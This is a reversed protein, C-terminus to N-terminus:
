AEIEWVPVGAARAKAIMDATGRGGPFAIVLDPGHTLMQANRIPGAADGHRAWDARVGITFKESNGPRRQARRAEQERRTIARWEEAALSDAGPACGHILGLMGYDSMLDLVARVKARDAYARGGCVLVRRVLGLRLDAPLRIM